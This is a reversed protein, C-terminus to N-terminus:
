AYKEWRPLMRAFLKRWAEHNHETYEEYPQHIYLQGQSRADEIFPAENTTLGRAVKGTATNM